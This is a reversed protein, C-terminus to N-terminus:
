SAEIVEFLLKDTQGEGERREAASVTAADVEALTFRQCIASLNCPAAAVAHGHASKGM